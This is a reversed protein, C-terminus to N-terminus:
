VDFELFLLVCCRMGVVVCRLLLCRACLVSLLMCCVCYCCFAVVCLLCSGAVVCVFTGCLLCCCCWCCVVVDFCLCSVDGFRSLLPLWCVVVHLSCCGGWSHAFLGVCGFCVRRWCFLCVVVIFLVLLM